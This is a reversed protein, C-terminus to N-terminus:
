GEEEQAEQGQRAQGPHRRCGSCGPRRTAPAPAPAAAAPASGQALAASGAFLAGSLMLTSLLKSSM